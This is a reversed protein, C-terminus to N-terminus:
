PPPEDGADESRRRRERLIRTIGTTGPTRIGPGGVGWIGTEESEPANGSMVRLRAWQVRMVRMWLWLATLALVVILLVRLQRTWPLDHAALLMAAVLLLLVYVVSLAILVLRARAPGWRETLRQWSSNSDTSRRRFM